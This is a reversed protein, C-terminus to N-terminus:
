RQYRWWMDQGGIRIRDNRTVTGSGRLRQNTEELGILMPRTAASMFQQVLEHSWKEDLQEKCPSGPLVAHRSVPSLLHASVYHPGSETERQYTYLSTM